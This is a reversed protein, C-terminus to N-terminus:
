GALHLQTHSGAVDDVEIVHAYDLQHWTLLKPSPIGCAESPLSRVATGRCFGDAPLRHYVRILQWQRHAAVGVSM